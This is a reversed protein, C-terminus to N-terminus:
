LFLKLDKTTLIVYTNTLLHPIACNEYYHNLFPTEVVIIYNNCLFLWM